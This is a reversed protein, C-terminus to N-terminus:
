LVGPTLIALRAAGAAASGTDQDSQKVNAYSDIYSSKYSDYPTNGSAVKLAIEARRRELMARRTVAYADMKALAARDLRYVMLRTKDRMIQRSTLALGVQALVWRLLPLPEQSKGYHRGLVNHLDHKHDTIWASLRETIEAATLEQDAGARWDIGWVATLMGVILSQTLTYHQRRSVLVGAGAERRDLDKLVDPSEDLNTFTRLKGRQDPTHLDDYLVETLEDRGVSHLIKYAENGARLEPTLKGTDRAAQLTEDDVVPATLVADKHRAKVTERSAKIEAQVAENKGTTSAITYGDALAKFHRLPANQAANRHAELQALLWAANKLIPPMVMIGHQDFDCAAGTREAVREHRAIITEASTPRKGECDQVYAHYEGAHRARALLQHYDYASLGNVRQFLGFAGAVPATIDIGTGLSSTYILAKLDPLAANIRSIFAQTDRDESNDGHVVRVRDSGYATIFIEAASEATAKSTCAIVVPAASASAMKLAADLVTTEHEHLVLAGRDHTYTNELSWVDGATVHQLWKRTVDTLHADLGIFRPTQRIIQCLVTYCAQALGGRMTEGELHANFQELEDIVILDYEPLKSGYGATLKSLSNYCITLRSARTLDGRRLRKYNEFAAGTETTLRDSMNQALAQRHTIVLVRPAHGLSKELAAYFRGIFATKGTNTPSKILLARESMLPAPALESVYRMNVRQDSTFAPLVVAPLAPAPTDAPSAKPASASTPKRDARKRGPAATKQRKERYDAIDIGLAAGIAIIGYGERGNWDIGTLKEPSFDFSPRKEDRFPSLLRLNGNRLRKVARAEIARLVDTVFREPFETSDYTYDAARQPKTEIVPLVALPCAALAASFADQDFAVAQWLDNTDGKTPLGHISLDYANFTIGVATLADNWRRAARLGAPAKIEGTKMAVPADLDPYYEVRTVGWSKFLEAVGDPLNSEGFICLVNRIGAAHFTLVGPEGNAVILVGGAATIADLLDPAHYYLAKSKNLWLYKPSAQSDLHKFRTAVIQGGQDYVPYQWGDGIKVLHKPQWDMARAASLLGRGSLKADTTSVLLNSKDAKSPPRGQDTGPRATSTPQPEPTAHHKGNVM